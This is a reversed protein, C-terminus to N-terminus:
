VKDKGRSNPACKLDANPMQVEGPESSPACGGLFQEGARRPRKWVEVEGRDTEDDWCGRSRKLCAADWAKTEESKTTVRYVRNRGNSASWGARGDSM